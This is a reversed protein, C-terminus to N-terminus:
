ENSMEPIQFNNYLTLYKGLIKSYSYKNNISRISKKGLKRRLIRSNLLLLLKSYLDYRELKLSFVLGNTQHIIIEKNADIDSVICAVGFSMAELLSMSMGEALSPLVFIDAKALYKDIDTTFQTFSIKTELKNSKVFNHLRAKEPGDGVILCKYPLNILSLARLLCIVNKREILQGTYIIVPTKRSSQKQDFPTTDRPKVGNFITKVKRKSVNLDNILKSSLHNAVCINLDVLHCSIFYFINKWFFDPECSLFFYNHRNTLLFVKDSSIFSIARAFFATYEGRLSQAHILKIKNHKVM